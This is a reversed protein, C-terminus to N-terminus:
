KQCLHIAFFTQAAFVQERRQFITKKFSRAAVAIIILDWIAIEQMSDRRNLYTIYSSFRSLQARYCYGVIYLCFLFYFSFSNTYTPGQHAPGYYGSPGEIVLLQPLHFSNHVNQNQNTVPNRTEM